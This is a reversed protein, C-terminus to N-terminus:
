TDQHPERVRVALAVLVWGPYGCVEPILDLDICEARGVAGRHVSCPGDVGFRLLVERQHRGVWGADPVPVPDFDATVCIDHTQVVQLRGAEDTPLWSTSARARRPCWGEDAKLSVGSVAHGEPM